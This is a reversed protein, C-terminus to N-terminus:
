ALLFDVWLMELQPEIRATGQAINLGERQPHRRFPSDRFLCQSTGSGSYTQQTCTPLRCLQVLCDRPDFTSLHDNKHPLRRALKKQLESSQRGQVWAEGLGTCGRPGHQPRRRTAPNVWCLRSASPTDWGSVGSFGLGVNGSRKHMEGSRLHRQAVTCLYEAATAARCPCEARATTPSCLATIPKDLM